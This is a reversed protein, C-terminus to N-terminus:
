TRSSTTRSYTRRRTDPVAVFIVDARKVAEANEYVKFRQEQGGQSVQEGQLPRHHCERRQGQSQRTPVVRRDSALVAM